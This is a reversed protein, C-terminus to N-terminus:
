RSSKGIVVADTICVIDSYEIPLAELFRYKGVLSSCCGPDIYELADTCINVFPGHYVGTNQVVLNKYINTLNLSTFFVLLYCHFPLICWASRAPM